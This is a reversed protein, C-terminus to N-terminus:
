RATSRSTRTPSAACTACCRPRPTTRNFVPHTLFTARARAPRRAHADDVSATSRTSADAAEAGFARWCPARRRRPTTTEDLAIGLTDADVCACTSAARRARAALSRRRAGGASSAHAHRLVRRHRRRYGCGRLGRPWSRPTPPPRARRHAAPGRARPLRRVHRGHRRAAGARHLHQSTAKERRIHQERTQLALRLAPRGHADVRCASSAAPCPASTARRPTAFFAAHPGGYGM